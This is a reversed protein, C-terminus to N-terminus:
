RLDLKQHHILHRPNRLSAALTRLAVAVGAVVAVQPQAEVAVEAM